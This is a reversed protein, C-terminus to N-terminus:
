LDTVLQERIIMEKITFNKYVQKM